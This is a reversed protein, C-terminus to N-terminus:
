VGVRSTYYLVGDMWDFTAVVQGFVSLSFSSSACLPPPSPPLLFLSPLSAFTFVSSCPSIPLHRTHFPYLSFLTSFSSSFHYQLTCYSFLIFQGLVCTVCCVHSLMNECRYHATGSVVKMCNRVKM